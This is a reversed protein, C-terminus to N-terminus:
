RGLHLDDRVCEDGRPGLHGEGGGGGRFPKANDVAHCDRGDQEVAMERSPDGGRSSRHSLTRNNASFRARRRWTALKPGPFTDSWPRAIKVRMSNFIKDAPGTGAYRPWTGEVFVAESEGSWPPSCRAREPEICRAGVRRAQKVQKLLFNEPTRKGVWLAM